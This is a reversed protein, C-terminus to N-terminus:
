PLSRKSLYEKEAFSELKSYDIKDTGSKHPLTTVFEIYTPVEFWKLQEVEGTPLIVPNNLLNLVMDKTNDNSEYSSVLVIYVKNVFLDKEDPVKVAACEVVCDLASVITQVRDLYVKNLTSKIYFRSLRGSIRFYGDEDITGMTGTKFFTKGDYEFKVENTSEPEGYYEKFVHKGSVCLMGEEGYKKQEMTEPDVIMIELGVLMKGATGPKFLNGVSNSGCSVTEANGFGNGIIINNAGHKHFYEIGMKVHSSTLFDGGSFFFNVSSLDIDDSINRMMLELMAPSGFIINPKKAMYDAITDPVVEPVLIATKSMMLSLLCSTCFGYPYMFPVLVMSNKGVLKAGKSDNKCYIAQALINENTLLVSKPKGTTGSTYLIMADDMGSINVKSVKRNQGLTGISNFDIWKSSINENREFLSADNIKEKRLTIVHKIETKEVVAKNFEEDMDYNILVPTKYKNAYETLEYESPKSNFFSAVAGIKNSAFFSLVAQYINPMSIMVIDGKKVGIAQLSAAVIDADKLMKEYTIRLDLCDIAITNKHLISLIKITKYISTNPIYPHTAFFGYGKNQPKDIYPNGTVCKSWKNLSIKSTQRDTLYKGELYNGSTLRKIRFLTRKPIFKVENIDLRRGGHMPLQLGCLM